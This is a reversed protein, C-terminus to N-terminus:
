VVEINHRQEIARSQKIRQWEAVALAHKCAVCRKSRVYRDTGGCRRCVKGKYITNITM